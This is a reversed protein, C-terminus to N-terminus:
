RDAPPGPRPTFLGVFGDFMTKDVTFFFSNDLELWGVTERKYRPAPDVADTFRIGEKLSVTGTEEKGSVIIRIRREVEERDAKKCFIYVEVKGKWPDGKKHEWPKRINKRDIEITFGEYDACEEAIGGLARPVAGFEYEAAGMYDFSLVPRLIDMAQPSLGGSAGCIGFAFPNDKIRGGLFERPKNLRQILHTWNM